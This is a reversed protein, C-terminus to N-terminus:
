ENFVDVGQELLLEKARDIPIRATGARENMWGYSTLQANQDAVITDTNGRPNQELLPGPPLQAQLTTPNLQNSADAGGNGALFLIGFIVGFSVLLLMFVSVISIVLPRARIDKLEHGVAVSEPSAPAGDGGHGHSTKTTTSM